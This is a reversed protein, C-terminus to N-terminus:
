SKLNSFDLDIDHASNNIILESIQGDSRIFNVPDECLLDQTHIKLNELITDIFNLCGTM